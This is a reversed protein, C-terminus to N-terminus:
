KKEITRLVSLEDILVDRFPKFDDGQTRIYIIQNDGKTRYCHKRLWDEAKEQKYNQALYSKGYPFAKEAKYVNGDIRIETNETNFRDLLFILKSLENAPRNQYKQYAASEQLPEMAWATSAAVCLAVVCFFKNM